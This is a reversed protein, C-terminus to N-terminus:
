NEQKDLDGGDIMTVNASIYDSLGSIKEAPIQPINNLRIGQQGLWVAPVSINQRYKILASPNDIVTQDLKRLAEASSVLESGMRASRTQAKIPTQEKKVFGPKSRVFREFDERKGM